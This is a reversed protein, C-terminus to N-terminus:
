VNSILFIYNHFNYVIHLTLNFDINGPKCVEEGGPGEQHDEEEQTRYGEPRNTTASEQLGVKHYGSMSLVQNM